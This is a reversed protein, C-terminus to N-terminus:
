KLKSALTERMADEEETRKPNLKRSEALADPRRVPGIDEDPIEILSKVPTNRPLLYFRVIEDMTEPSLRSDLIKFILDYIKENM